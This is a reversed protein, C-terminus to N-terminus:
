FNFLRGLRRQTKGCRTGVSSGNNWGCIGRRGQDTKWNSKAQTDQKLNVWPFLQKYVPSRVIDRVQESHDRSLDATASIFINLADPVLGLTWPIFYIVSLETKGHRPPINIMLNKCDGIFVREMANFLREHHWNLHFKKNNAEFMTQTFTLYDTYCGEIQSDTLKQM